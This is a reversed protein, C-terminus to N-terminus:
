TREASRRDQSSRVISAEVAQYSDAAHRTARSLSGAASSLIALDVRLRDTLRRVAAETAEPRHMIVITGAVEALPGFPEAAGLTAAHVHLETPDVRFSRM